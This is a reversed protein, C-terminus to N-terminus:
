STFPAELDDLLNPPEAGDPLYYSEEMYHIFRWQGDDDLQVVATVRAAAVRPQDSEISRIRWKVVFIALMTDPAIERIWSRPISVSADVIRSRTRALHGAIATWGSLIDDLEPAMYTTDASRAWLSALADWQLAEWFQEFRQLVTQVDSKKTTLPMSPDKSM